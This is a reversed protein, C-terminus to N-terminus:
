HNFFAKYINKQETNSWWQLSDCRCGTRLAGAWVLCVILPEASQTTLPYMVPHNASSKRICVFLLRGRDWSSPTFYIYRALGLCITSFSLLIFHRTYCPFVTLSCWPNPFLHVNKIITTLAPLSSPLWWYMISSILATESLNEWSERM